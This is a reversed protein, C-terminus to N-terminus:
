SGDPQLSSDLRDKFIEKRGRTLRIHRPNSTISVPRSEHSPKHNGQLGWLSTSKWEEKSSAGSTFGM